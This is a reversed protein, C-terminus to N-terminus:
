TYVRTNVYAYIYSYIYISMYMYVYVNNRTALPSWVPSVYLLSQASLM